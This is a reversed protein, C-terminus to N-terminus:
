SLLYSMSSVNQNEFNIALNASQNVVKVKVFPYLLATKQPHGVTTISRIDLLMKSICSASRMLHGSLDGAVVWSTIFFFGVATVLHMSPYFNFETGPTLCHMTSFFYNYIKNPISNDNYVIETGVNVKLYYAQTQSGLQHQLKCLIGIEVRLFDYDTM